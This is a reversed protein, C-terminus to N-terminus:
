RVRDGSCPPRTIAAAYAPANTADNWTTLWTGKFPTSAYTMLARHWPTADTGEASDKKQCLQPLM